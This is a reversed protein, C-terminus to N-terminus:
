PEDPGGSSPEAPTAPGALASVDIGYERGAHHIYASKVGMVMILGAIAEPLGFTYTDAAISAISREIRPGLSSGRKLAGSWHEWETHWIIKGAISPQDDDRPEFIVELRRGVLRDRNQEDIVCEIDGGPTVVISGIM